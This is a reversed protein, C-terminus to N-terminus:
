IKSRALLENISLGVGDDMKLNLECNLDANIVKKLGNPSTKALTAGNRFIRGTKYFNSKPNRAGFRSDHKM